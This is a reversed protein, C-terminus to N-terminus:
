LGTISGAATAILGLSAWDLCPDLPASLQQRIVRVREESDAGLVRGSSALRRLKVAEKRNLALAFLHTHHSCLTSASQRSGIAILRAPAVDLGLEEALEELAIARPPLHEKRSSGGPPEVVFGSTNCVALRYERVLFIEAEPGGADFIPLVAVTDPRALFIENSKTRNEGAVAVSASALFGFLQSTPHRSGFPLAYCLRFNRLLHGAANLLTYWETFPRSLWIALPVDRETGRREAGAGILKLSATLLDPLSDCPECGTVARWRADLTACAFAHAPRGYLYRCGDFGEGFDLDVRNPATTGEELPVWFLILDARARMDAEWNFYDPRYCEDRPQPIIVAGAYGLKRLLLLAESRWSTGPHNSQRPGSLFLSARCPDPLDEPAHVVHM